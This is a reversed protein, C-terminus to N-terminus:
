LTEQEDNRPTDQLQSLLHQRSTYPGRFFLNELPLAPKREGTALRGAVPMAAEHHEPHCHPNARRTQAMFDGAM